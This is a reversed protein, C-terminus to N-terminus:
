YKKLRQLILKLDTFFSTEKLYKKSLIIKKPMIEQIYGDEVNKYNKLIQEEHRFALTAYDTIGPKIKLIEQYDNRFLEVYKAVEPRPGVISLDGKFVNILQPLEDIKTRRIFKGIRTVRRDGGQTILLGSSATTRVMSRFKYLNFPRFDKGIRRQIFFVTGPSDLKILVAVTAFLPFSFVLGSLSLVFDFIRKGNIKEMKQM